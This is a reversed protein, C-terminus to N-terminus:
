RGPSRFSGRVDMDDMIHYVKDDREYDTEISEVILFRSRPM